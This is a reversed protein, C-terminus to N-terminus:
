IRSCPETMKRTKTWQYALEEDRQTQPSVEHVRSGVPRQLRPLRMRGEDASDQDVTTPRGHVAV